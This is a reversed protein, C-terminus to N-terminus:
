DGKRVRRPIAEILEITYPHKPHLFVEEMPGEEVIKGRKMVAVRHCIRRVVQLNHSILMMSIGLEDNLRHLLELIQAQVTVDLATTPEDLLLLKPRTVLAAAIMVRQLMGGSCEHPYKRYVGEADPLDAERLAELARTRREERNMDTHVALAEEVQPGIRMLPDMASMPEQFVVGIASGQLKRLEARSRPLLDVGDLLVEGRCTVKKREILGSLTMATVTKGSGSEGVLGLVEGDHITFSIGGVAERDSDHFKVHLDRLEVM